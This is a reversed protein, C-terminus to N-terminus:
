HGSMLTWHELTWQSLPWSMLLALLSVGVLITLLYFQSKGSTNYKLSQGSFVTALGVFNVLGDFIYQDIWATIRSFLTVTFVVTIRYLRDIYFDYALLDQVFKLPVLVSRSWTRPLYVIAGLTCGLITFGALLLQPPRILYEYKEPPL